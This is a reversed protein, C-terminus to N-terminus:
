NNKGYWAYVLRTYRAVEQDLNEEIEEAWATLKLYDAEEEIERSLDLSYNFGENAFDTLPDRKLELEEEEMQERDEMRLGLKRIINCSYALNLYSGKGEEMEDLNDLIATVTNEIEMRCDAEPLRGAQIEERLQEVRNDTEQEMKALAEGVSQGTDYSEESVFLRFGALMGAVVIVISIFVVAKRM